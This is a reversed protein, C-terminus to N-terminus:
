ARLNVFARGVGTLGSGDDDHKGRDRSHHMELDMGRPRASVSSAVVIDQFSCADRYLIVDTWSQEIRIKARPPWANRIGSSPISTMGLRMLDPRRMQRIALGGGESDFSLCESAAM